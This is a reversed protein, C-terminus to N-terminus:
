LTVFSVVQDQLDILAASKERTRYLAGPNVLHVRGIRMEERVHTHGQLLFDHQQQGLIMQKLKADDGHMVALRKGDLTLDAMAGYCPVGIKEGYRQLAMRDWDCNGWVFASPLGALVDLVQPSGVDGCHIFFSAGRQQLLQVAALAADFRGHTDSLVGVLMGRNYLIADELPHPQRSRTQHPELNWFVLRM